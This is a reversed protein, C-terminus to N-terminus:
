SMTEQWSPAVRASPALFVRPVASHNEWVQVGITPDEYLLTLEPHPEVVRLAFGLDPRDLYALAAIMSGPQAPVFELRVQLKQDKMGQLPPFVFEQFSNNLLSTGDLDQQRLLIGDESLIKLSATGPNSRVYTSLFVAIDSLTDTPCLLSM